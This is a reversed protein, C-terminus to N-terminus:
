QNDVQKRKLLTGDNLTFIKPDDTKHIQPGHITDLYFSKLHSEEGPYYSRIRQAIVIQRVIKKDDIAPFSGLIEKQDKDM